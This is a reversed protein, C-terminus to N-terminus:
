VRKEATPNSDDMRTYYVKIDTNDLKAKVAKAVELTIDKASVGNSLVGDEQLGYAPDIVIIKDYVEKPTMFEVYLTNDEFISHYEYVGALDFRLCMRDKDVDFHGETVSDCNGYVGNTEYFKEHEQPNKHTINVWLERDMYHNEIIVEEAKVDEPLPICFYKTNQSDRDISINNKDVVVSKETSKESGENGDSEQVVEDQAVDAVVIIKNASYYLIASMATTVFVLCYVAMRKMLNNQREQQM